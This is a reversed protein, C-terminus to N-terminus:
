RRPRLLLWDPPPPPEPPHYAWQRWRGPCMGIYLLCGFTIVVREVALVVYLMFRKM